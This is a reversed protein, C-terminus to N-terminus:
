KRTAALEKIFADSESPSLTGIQNITDYMFKLDSYKELNYDEPDFLAKNAVKLKIVMEGLIYSLNEETPNNLDMHEGGYSM